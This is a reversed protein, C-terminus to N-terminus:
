INKQGGRGAGLRRGKTKRISSSESIKWKREETNQMRNIDMKKGDKLKKEM